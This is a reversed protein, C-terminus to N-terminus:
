GDLDGSVKTEADTRDLDIRYAGNGVDVRRGNYLDREAYTLERTTEKLFRVNVFGFGTVWQGIWHEADEGYIVALDPLKRSMDGLLHTATTAMM